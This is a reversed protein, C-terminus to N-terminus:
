GQADSMGKLECRYIPIVRVTNEYGYFIMRGDGMTRSIHRKLHVTTRNVKVILGTYYFKRWGSTKGNARYNEWYTVRDGPKM